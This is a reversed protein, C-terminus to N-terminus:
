KLGDFAEVPEVDATVAKGGKIQVFYMKSSGVRPFDAPGTKNPSWTALGQLDVDQGKKLAATVSEATIEGEIGKAVDAFAHVALWANIGAARKLDPDTHGAATMEENYKKIAPIDDSHYSPSPSALLMGEAAATGVSKAQAEGFAYSSHAWRTKVGIAQAAKMVGQVQAPTAIHVVADANLRKVKEAYPSYDTVGTTPVKVLGAYELGAAEIAKKLYDNNSLATPLDASLAGIRKDGLQKLGFPLALYASYTGATFPYSVESKTDIPSGFTILGISPIGAQELLPLTQPTFLDAEGVVAAAKQQVAERTCKASENPDARNNCFTLEIPHGNIGGADNIAKAAAKVSAEIDPYNQIPSGVSATAFLKVPTGGGGAAKDSKAEDDGGCAAVFATSSLALLLAGKRMLTNVADM